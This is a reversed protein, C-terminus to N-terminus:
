RTSAGIGAGVYPGRPADRACAAGLLVLLVVLAARM